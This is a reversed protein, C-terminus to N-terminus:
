PAASILCSHQLVELRAAVVTEPYRFVGEFLFNGDDVNTIKEVGVSIFVNTTTEPAELQGYFPQLKSATAKEIGLGEVVCALATLLLLARLLKM